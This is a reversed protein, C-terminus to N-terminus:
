HKFYFMFITLNLTSRPCVIINYWDLKDNCFNEYRKLRLYRKNSMILRSKTSGLEEFIEMEGNDTGVYCQFIEIHPLGIKNFGTNM